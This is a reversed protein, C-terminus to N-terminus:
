SSAGQALHPPFAPTPELKLGLSRPSKGGDNSGAHGEETQFPHNMVRSPSNDFESLNSSGGHNNDNNSGTNNNSTSDNNNNNSTSVSTTKNGHYPSANVLNAPFAEGDHLNRTESSSQPSSTRHSSSPSTPEPSAGPVHNPLVPTTYLPLGLHGAPSGSTSTAPLLFGPHFPFRAAAAAAALRASVDQDDYLFNPGLAAPMKDEQERKKADTRNVHAKKKNSNNSSSSNNERDKQQQYFIHQSLNLSDANDGDDTYDNSVDNDNVDNDPSYRATPDPSLGRSPPSNGGKARPSHSPSGTGSHHDGQLFQSSNDGDEGDDPYGSSGDGYWVRRIDQRRNKMLAKYESIRLKKGDVICTRKPRPVDVVVADVVIFVAAVVVVVVVVVVVAVVVVVVVVIVEVVVLVVLLLLLLLKTQNSSEIILKSKLSVITRMEPSSVWHLSVAPIVM